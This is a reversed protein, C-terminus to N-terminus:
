ATSCPYTCTSWQAQDHCLRSPSYVRSRSLVPAERSGQASLSHHTLQPQNLKRQFTGQMAERRVENVRENNTAHYVYPKEPSNIMRIGGSLNIFFGLEKLHAPFSPDPELTDQVRRFMTTYIRSTLATAATPITPAIAVSAPNHQQRPPSGSGDNAARPPLLCTLFSIKVRHSLSTFASCSSLYTLRSSKPRLTEDNAGLVRDNALGYTSGFTSTDYRM